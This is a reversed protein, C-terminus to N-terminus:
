RHIFVTNENVALSQTALKIKLGAILYTYPLGQSYFPQAITTHM